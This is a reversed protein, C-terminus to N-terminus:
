QEAEYRHGKSRRFTIGILFDLDKKKFFFELERRLRKSPLVILVHSINKSRSRRPNWEFFFRKKYAPKPPAVRPWFASTRKRTADRESRASVGYLEM